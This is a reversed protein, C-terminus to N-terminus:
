GQHLAGMTPVLGVSTTSLNARHLNLYCQLAAITTFLRM